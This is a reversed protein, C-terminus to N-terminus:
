LRPTSYTDPSLEYAEWLLSGYIENPQCTLFAKLLVTPQLLLILILYLQFAFIKKQQTDLSMDVAQNLKIKVIEREKQSVRPGFSTSICTSRKQFFTIFLFLNLSLSPHNKAHIGSTVILNSLISSSCFM